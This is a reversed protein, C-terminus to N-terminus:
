SGQQAFEEYGGADMLRDLQEPDDLEIKCYWGEGHPDANLLEPRLDLESNAASVRGSVPSFIESVAKVSEITGLVDGARVAKGEEPLEVFVIDGLQDQAFDTIGIVGVRDDVRIWEHEKSYRRDTPYM